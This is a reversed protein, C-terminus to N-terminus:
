NRIRAFGAQDDGAELPSEKHFGNQNIPSHHCIEKKGLFGELGYKNFKIDNNNLSILQMLIEAELIM